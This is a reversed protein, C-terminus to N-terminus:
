NQFEFLLHIKTRLFPLPKLTSSHSKIQQKELQLSAIIVHGSTKIAVKEASSHSTSALPKVLDKAMYTEKYSIIPDSSSGLNGRCFNIGPQISQFWEFPLHACPWTKCKMYGVEICMKLSLM